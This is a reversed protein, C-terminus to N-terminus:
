LSLVLCIKGVSVLSYIQHTTVLPATQVATTMDTYYQGEVSKANMSWTNVNMMNWNMTMYCVNQNYISQFCDDHGGLDAAREEAGDALAGGIAEM